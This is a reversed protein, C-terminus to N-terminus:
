ADVIAIGKLKQIGMPKFQSEKSKKNEERFYRRKEKEDIKDQKKKEKEEMIKISEACTLVGGSPKSRAIFVKSKKPPTPIILFKTQHSIRKIPM